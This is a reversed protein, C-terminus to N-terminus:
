SIVERGREGERQRHEARLVAPKILRRMGNREKCAFSKSACEVSPGACARLCVCVCVCVSRMVM